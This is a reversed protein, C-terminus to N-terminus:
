RSGLAREVGGRQVFLRDMPALDMEGATQPEVFRVLAGEQTDPEDNTDCRYFMLLIDRGQQARLVDIVRGVCVDIALEERLERELAQEPSEGEELKGGPFEWKGALEKGEPRRCLMLRGERFLVGAVVAIM